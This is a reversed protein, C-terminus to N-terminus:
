LDHNQPASKAKEIHLEEEDEETSTPPLVGREALLESPSKDKIEPCIRCLVIELIGYILYKNLWVDDSWGLIEEEIEDAREEESDGKFLTRAVRNPFM